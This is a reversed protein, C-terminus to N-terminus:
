KIAPGVEKFTSNANEGVIITKPLIRVNVSVKATLKAGGEVSVRVASVPKDATGLHKAVMMGAMPDLAAILKQLRNMNVTMDLAPAAAPKSELAAKVADVAGPGFGVFVADKAFAVAGPPKAGFAKAFDDDADTPLIRYLPVKHVSIDGVKAVDFEFEKAFDSEKALARVAKEVTAPDNFSLGAVLTFKGTADPGNLVVAADVDGAKVTRAVGKLAEAVIPKLKEPVKTGKLEAEQGEFIAAGIERLEKAFLPAKLQVALATDKTVLGAFRNTTPTTAAIEKALATGAKPVLTLETITDGTMPDFNFKAGVEDAEKLGTEVYRRLLKPGEELLTKLVKADGGGGGGLFGKLGNAAQDIEDLIHAVLKPPVRGPFLKVSALSTNANDLLDGIAALNKADTPEGDNFTIYAWGGDTFQLHSEKPFPSDGPLDLEYVGKKDKVAETKIKIRELFGLFDKETTVPIVLVLGCDKPTDKLVVYAAIPRNIDLGEFGKEGLGDKLSKEFEKVMAEGQATGGVQRMIEKFETLLRSVPQTQIVIAPKPPEASAVGALAFLLALSCVFRSRM